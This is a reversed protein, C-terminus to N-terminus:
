PVKSEEQVATNDRGRLLVFRLSSRTEKTRVVASRQVDGAPCDFVLPDAARASDLVVLNGADDILSVELGATGPSGTVSIAGIAHCREGEFRLPVVLGEGAEIAGSTIVEASLGRQQMRAVMEAYAIRAQGTISPSTQKPEHLEFAQIAYAGEGQDMAVDVLYRAQAGSCFKVLADRKRTVDAAIPTLSLGTDFVRMDLDAVIRSGTALLAYCREPELLVGRAEHRGASLVGYGLLRLPSYGLTGLSARVDALADAIARGEPEPGIDVLAPRPMGVAPCRAVERLKSAPTDARELAAYSVEGQGDLVRVSALVREGARGCYRLSAITTPGTASALVRGSPEHLTLAVDQVYRSGVAVYGRCDSHEYRDEHVRVDGPLLFDTAWGGRVREGVFANAVCSQLRSVPPGALGKAAV